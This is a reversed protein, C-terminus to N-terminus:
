SLKSILPTFLGGSINDHLHKGTLSSLAISLLSGLAATPEHADEEEDTDM